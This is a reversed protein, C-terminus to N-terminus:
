VWAGAFRLAEGELLEQQRGPLVCPVRGSGVAHPAPVGAWLASGPLLLSVVLIGRWGRWFAIRVTARSAPIM